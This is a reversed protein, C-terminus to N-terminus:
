AENLPDDIYTTTIFAKSADDATASLYGGSDVHINGRYSLLNIIQVGSSDYKATFKGITGQSEGFGNYNIVVGTGTTDNGGLMIGTIAIKNTSSDHIATESTGIAVCKTGITLAM